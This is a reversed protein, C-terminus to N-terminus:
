LRYIVPLREVASKAVVDLTYPNIELDIDAYAKGKSWAQTVLIPPGANNEVLANSFGYPHGSIVVDVESDLAKVIEVIDGSLDEATPDTAGLYSNRAGGQHLLM